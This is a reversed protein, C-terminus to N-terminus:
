RDGGAPGHPEDVEAPDFLTCVCDIAYEGVEADDFADAAQCEGRGDVHEDQIHGCECELEDRDSM